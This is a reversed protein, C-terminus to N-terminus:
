GTPSAGKLAAIDAASVMGIVNGKSDVAEFAGSSNHWQDFAIPGAAGVYHITKGSALAHAGAAFTHVTVAGPGGSAIRVIQPSFKSPHTSHAALMAFAILNLSDYDAMSYPDTGYTSSHVAKTYVSVAPGSTLASPQMGVFHQNLNAAGIAGGVAKKWPGELTTDTGIIPLLRGLQRLESFFTASTQPDAETFIVQPNASLLQEVETRYSSQGPVLKENIVFKGGLKKFATLLTPVDSQAGIDNGFVAAARTYHHEHAWLALAYGKVDDAPIIRYFYRYSSKDFAAEGTDAFMPVNSANIVPVTAQAEDSSPGIVGVLNTTTALMKDAAPVADAADGRTDVSSCVVKHGIVGGSRNVLTAAANCGAMIEPGFAADVGSFPNFAAVTLPSTTSTGGCAALGLCTLAVTLPTTWRASARRTPISM